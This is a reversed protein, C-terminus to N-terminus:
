KETQNEVPPEPRVAGKPKYKATEVPLGRKKLGENVFYRVGAYVVTFVPVGLLMGIFGFLGAGLIISFMIWFGNMGVKGGLIKPGIVNGDLQQLLLIFIVFVLCKMPSIMLLIVACPVAGIFPGFFPIINTVGIIVSILVAYPMKLIVCGIYCLIGIIFSDLMKGSVFGMVTKDSFDLANMFKEMHERSFLSYLVKKAQASFLEKNYLIYISAITGVLINYVGKLLIVVSSSVSYIVNNIMPMLSSILWTSLGNSIDGLVEVAHREIEPYNEFLDKLWSEAQAMYGSMNLVISEISVYLQPLVLILLLIIVAYMIIIACIISFTRSFGFVRKENQKFLRKGAPGFLKLQFWRVMPTLLYAIVFGWIFPSLIAVVSYVADKVSGWRQIIWFFIICAIVVCFATVGWYLYKKEWKFKKM